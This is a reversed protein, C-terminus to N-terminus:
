NAFVRVCYGKIGCQTNVYECLIEQPNRRDNHKKAHALITDALEKGMEYEVTECFIDNAEIKQVPKAKKQNNRRRNNTKNFDAMNISEKCYDDFLNCKARLGREITATSHQSTMLELEFMM